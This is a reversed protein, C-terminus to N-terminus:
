RTSEKNYGKEGFPQLKQLWKKELKKLEDKKDFFGEEPEELVELVEFAFASEGYENWEQQLAKNSYSGGRLEMLRGNITKLNPTAIIFIKGNVTNRIQYVGAEIKIEKYQKILEKKRDMDIEEKMDPAEVLWYQSGNAKRAMFGYEVLYRRLTVFDENVTKLIENVEKESYKKKPNFRNVIQSLVVLKSKEKMHFTALPGNLGKPFYKKLINEKEEVTVNYRDDVMKANKHPQVCGSAKKGNERLLEMLVLFLKAQKEKEKLVFRHNRVTSSSGIGLEKQVGADTMGQYFLKMLSSQHDSLGTVKKDLDILHEFVSGHEKCIHLKMYREAEYLKEECSYIVGMEISRGCLLCIYNGEDETYGKKMDAISSGLLKEVNDSM